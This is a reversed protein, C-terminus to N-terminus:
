TGRQQWRPNPYFSAAHCTRAVQVRKITYVAQDASDLQSDHRRM